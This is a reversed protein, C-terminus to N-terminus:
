ISGASGPAHFPPVAPSFSQRGAAATYRSYRYHAPYDMARSKGADSAPLGEPLAEAAPTITHLQYRGHIIRGAKEAPTAATDSRSSM